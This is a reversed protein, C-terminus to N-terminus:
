IDRVNKNVMKRSHNKKRRLRIICHTYLVLALKKIWPGLTLPWIRTGKFRSMISKKILTLDLTKDVWGVLAIKNPKTYNRRDMTIYKEKDLFLRSLSSALWM